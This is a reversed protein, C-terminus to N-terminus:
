PKRELAARAQWAEWQANCLKYEKRYAQSERWEKIYAASVNIYGAYWSEFQSREDIAVPVPHAYLAKVEGGYKGQDQLLEARNLGIETGGIAGILAWAVPQGQHQKVPQALIEGIAKRAEHRSFEDICTAQELLERPVMVYEGM